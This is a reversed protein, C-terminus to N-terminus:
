YGDPTLHIVPMTMHKQIPADPAYLSRELALRWDPSRKALFDVRALRANESALDVACPVLGNSAIGGALLADRPLSRAMPVNTAPRVARDIFEKRDTTSM